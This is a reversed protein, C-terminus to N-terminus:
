GASPAESPGNGPGGTLRQFRVWTNGREVMGSRDQPMRYRKRPM